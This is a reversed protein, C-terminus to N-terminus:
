SQLLSLIQQPRNNAQALITTSAQVLVSEQTYNTMAAAMDTDIIRSMSETINESSIDLSAVTSDLRNQYAGLQARTGSVSRIADDFTSIAKSAGERSCVNVLSTGSSEKFKLTRCSVEPFDVAMTQHENAGIQLLMSGTDYVAIKVTKGLAASSGAPVTTTTPPTTSTDTSTHDASLTEVAIQMKFGSSDEILLNNGDATCVVNSSFASTASTNVNYEANTGQTYSETGVAGELKIFQSSGKARTQLTLSNSGSGNIIEIDLKDCADKIKAEADALTDTSAIEISAENIYITSVGEAPITYSLTNVAPTALATLKIEYNGAKVGESISLTSLGNTDYTVVRTCSGDLLGKGNYETTSGIRDVEELLKDIEVQISERDELINTDNAAQVSLERMRQIIAEIESLAGEATQIISTGDEANRSAQDLARIQTRMKKSIALGAADDAASNIKYGSSLSELSSTLKKNTKKLNINALQATVNHNIRM